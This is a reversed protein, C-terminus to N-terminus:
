EQRKKGRGREKVIEIKRGKRIERGKKIGTEQLGENRERDKKGEVM